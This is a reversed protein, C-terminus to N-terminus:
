IEATEKGKQQGVKQQGVKERGAYSFFGVVGALVSLAACWWAVRRFGAVFSLQIDRRLATAQAAPMGQPTPLQALRDAQTLLRSQQAAPLQQAGMRAALEGRFGGVMLIGLGAVALLGGTRSVANNVGSATGQFNPEVSGLVASTLPAVTVSLGLGLVFIAPFFSSWYSGGVGPRTFLAFALACLLPGLTLPLRSGLRAALGGVPRSLVTLLAALPILAAGAAAPSYGQVGILNLPLFFTLAGLAAYLLLTLLNVGSFARSRFLRLPLMPAHWSREWLVFGALLGAGLGGLLLPSAWGVAARSEGARILAYTLLGLGLTALLSGGLDPRQAGGQKTEPVGRLCWLTLLALPINIFFAWRWSLSQVLVGGLLPGLLNTAATAASWLGVARGRGAEDFVAGIMALSGPILLAGGVGQLMRAAILVPLSPALGCLVSALAFVGVGIGFVRRRGYLDGLAGGTLILAALMLTYGNVVWQSGGVGSQFSRQIASLAVNVISGDIFAMSSGLVTAAVTWRQPTTWPAAPAPTATM